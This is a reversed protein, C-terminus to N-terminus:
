KAEWLKGEPGCAGDPKRKFECFEAGEGNVPDLTQMCRAYPSVIKFIWAGMTLASYRKCDKCFKM